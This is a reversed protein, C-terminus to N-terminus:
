GVMFLWGVIMVCGSSLFAPGLWEEEGEDQMSGIVKDFAAGASHTGGVCAVSFNSM